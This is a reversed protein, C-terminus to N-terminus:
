PGSGSRPPKGPYHPSRFQNARDQIQERLSKDHDSPRARRSKIRAMQERLRKAREAQKEEHTM